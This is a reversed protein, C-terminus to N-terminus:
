LSSGHARPHPHPPSQTHALPSSPPHTPPPLPDLTAFACARVGISAKAESNVYCLAHAGSFCLPEDLWCRRHPPLQLSEWHGEMEGRFRRTCSSLYLTKRHSKAM